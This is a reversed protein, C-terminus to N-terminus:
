TWPTPDLSAPKLTQSGPNLTQPRHKLLPAIWCELLLLEEEEEEEEEENSENCTRSPGHAKLQTIYSDVLRLCAGNLTVQVFGLDQVTFEPGSVRDGLGRWWLPM